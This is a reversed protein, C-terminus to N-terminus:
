APQYTLCRVRNATSGVNITEATCEFSKNFQCNSVKCAGVGATIDIEQTHTKGVFFTDCNPTRGDGITIAKAHCASSANYACSAVNCSQVETLLVTLKKM